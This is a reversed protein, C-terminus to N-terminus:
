ILAKQLAGKLAIIGVRKEQVAQIAGALLLARTLQIDKGPVSEQHGDFNIPFGSNAVHIGRWAVSRHSQQYKPLRQRIYSAPFERDSSSASILHMEHTIKKMQAITFMSKGTAGIIVNYQELRTSSIKQFEHGHKIEDFGDTPYKKKLVSLIGRGIPGLGVVMIRPSPVHRAFYEEIKHCVAVTIFPTENKLKASSRAVNIIPFSFRKERLREYGSSTQEVAVIPPLIKRHASIQQILEGGDDLVLIKKFEFKKTKAVLKNILKQAHEAHQQDFASHSEFAFSDPSVFVGRNRLAQAVTRNSSYCKGLLVVNKSELGLRFMEEFLDVTTELLHQCAIVGVGEFIKSTGFGAAKKLLPWRRNNM